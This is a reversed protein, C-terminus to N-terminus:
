EVFTLSLIFLGWFIQANIEMTYKFVFKLIKDKKKSLLFFVTSLSFNKIRMVYSSIKWFNNKLGWQLRYILRQLFFIQPGFRGLDNSLSHLKKEKYLQLNDLFKDHIGRTNVKM